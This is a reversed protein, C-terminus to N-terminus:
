SLEIRSEWYDPHHRKVVEPHSRSFSKFANQGYLPFMENKGGHTSNAGIVGSEVLSQWFPAETTTKDHLLATDLKLPRVEADLKPNYFFPVSFRSCKSPLNVVRHVTAVYYGGTALQLMEGLNVVLTGYHPPVDTWDGNLNRAQLGGINDQLLLTLMGSDTHPGVGFSEHDVQGELIMPYRLLKMQFHPTSGFLPDFTDRQLGLSLAIAQLLSSSVDRMRMMYEEALPRFEPLVVASPWQNPGRLRRYFPHLLSASCEGCQEIEVGEEPGLELQERYDTLGDTNECGLKMYGRFQPSNRYDLQMKVDVPLEFFRRGAHLLSDCLHQPVGHNRIYFLGVTRCQERLQALFTAVSAPHGSAFDGMDLVCAAMPHLADM